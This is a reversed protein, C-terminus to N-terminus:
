QQRGDAADRYTSSLVVNDADPERDVYEADLVITVDSAFGTTPGTVAEVADLRERLTDRDTM